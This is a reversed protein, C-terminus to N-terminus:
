YYAIALDRRGTASKSVVALGVSRLDVTLAFRGDAVIRKWAKRMGASWNIDDFVLVAEPGVASLIENMYGVTAQEQHDGDVFAWDVPRLEGLVSPLTDSFRGLRVTARHDLGLEDLTRASREALIDAGELTVLRGSGNLELAASQYAASIGVCAGMELCSTPRLERILRFLLYAWQPPKSSNTMTGLTRSITTVARPPGADAESAKGAGLDLIELQRPSTRLLARLLEIRTVWSKEAASPRGLTAARLGAIVASPAEGSVTVGRLQLRGRLRRNTRVMVHVTDSVRALHPM